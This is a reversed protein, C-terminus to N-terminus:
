EVATELVGRPANCSGPIQMADYEYPERGDLFSFDTGARIPDAVDWPYLEPVGPVCERVMDIFRKM